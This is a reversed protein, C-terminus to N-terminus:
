CCFEDTLEVLRKLSTRMLRSRCGVGCFARPVYGYDSLWRVATEINSEDLANDFYLLRSARYTYDNFVTDAKRIGRVWELIDPLVDDFSPLGAYDIGDWADRLEEYLDADEATDKRIWHVYM